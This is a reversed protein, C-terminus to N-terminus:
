HNSFTTLTISVFDNTEQVIQEIDKDKGGKAKHKTKGSKVM